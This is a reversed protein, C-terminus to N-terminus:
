ISFCLSQVASYHFSMFFIKLLSTFHGPKYGFVIASMAIHLIYELSAAGTLVSNSYDLNLIVPKGIIM